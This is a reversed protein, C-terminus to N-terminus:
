LPRSVTYHLLSTLNIRSFMYYEGDKNKQIRFYQNDSPGLVRLGLRWITEIEKLRMNEKLYDLYANQLFDHYADTFEPTDHVAWPNRYDESIYMYLKALDKYPVMTVRPRFEMRDCRKKYWDQKRLRKLVDKTMKAFAPWIADRMQRLKKRDSIPTPQIDKLKGNTTPPKPSSASAEHEEEKVTNKNDKCESTCSSCLLGCDSITWPQQNGVTNDAYKHCNDCQSPEPVEEDSLPEYEQWDQVTFLVPPTEEQHALQTGSDPYEYASNSRDVQRTSRQVQEDHVRGMLRDLEEDTLDQLSNM